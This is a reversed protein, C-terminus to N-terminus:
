QYMHIWVITSNQIVLNFIELTFHEQFVVSQIFYEEGHTPILSVVTTTISKLKRQSAMVLFWFWLQQPSLSQNGKARWSWSDSECSNHHYVKIEKPEGHGPILSVVTTTISKSKRQSAMVLFWVWLQQPPLSQNGKSQWSWSDSECSNHHYVKIEKPKGHGPILSVVTATTSKSKRQSVMVLFWVWLQQPSLSQNGKTFTFRVLMPDQWFSEQFQIYLIIVATTHNNIKTRPYVVV